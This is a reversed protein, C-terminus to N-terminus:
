GTREQALQAVIDSVADQWRRRRLGFAADTATCDLRSDRPRRAPAPYDATTIAEIHRPVKLGLGAACRFIHCALGHWTTEGANTFHWTGSRADDDARLRALMLVLVQALDGAHTPTGRQDAVVRMVDREAGLRLMTRLFNPGQAGIVWATRVIAHRAGSQRVAAEGREKSRGYASAPATESTERWPGDRDAAFVYDTSVHVIPIGAAAAASALTGPAHANIAEALDPESEVRDVATYAACNIIGDIRQRRLLAPVDPLAALDLAARPPAIIDVGPPACRRVAMGVQGSGGTLLWREAMRWAWGSAAIAAM